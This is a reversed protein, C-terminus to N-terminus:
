RGEPRVEAVDQVRVVGRNLAEMALRGRRRDDGLLGFRDYTRALLKKIASESVFLEDAMAGVSAPEALVSSVLLPRCLAVLLDRERRSVEPPPAMPTTVRVDAGVTATGARFRLIATGLMVEDAPRLARPGVVREGNVFTGNRSGLDELVWGGTVREVVAHLRSVTEHPEIIDAGHRGLTFRTGDLVIFRPPGGNASVEFRAEM